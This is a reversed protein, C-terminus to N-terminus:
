VLFDWDSPSQQQLSNNFEDSEVFSNAVDSLSAGNEFANAWYQEGEPDPNRDLFAQYFTDVTDTIQTATSPDLPIDGYLAQGEDSLVFSAAVDGLRAGSQLQETWYQMGGLDADSQNDARDLATDYLTALASVNDDYEIIQNEDAFQLHEANVLSDSEGTTNDVVTVVAGKQTITYDAANGDFVVTDDGAGGYISDDGAGGAISDNGAGGHITDSGAGGDISDDGTGGRVTDSGAGADITDNGKGGSVSDDGGTTILTDDGLGGDITTNHDGDVTFQDDGDSGIIVRDVTNFHAVYGQGGDFVYARGSDRGSDDFNLPSDTTGRGEGDGLKIFLADANSNQLEAVTEVQEASSDPQLLSDIAAKLEAGHATEVKDTAEQISAYQQAM